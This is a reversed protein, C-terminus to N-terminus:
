QVPKKDPPVVHLMRDVQSVAMNLLKQRHQGGLALHGRPLVRYSRFLRHQRFTILWDAGIRCLCLALVTSGLNQCHWDSLIHFRSNNAILKLRDYQHLLNWGIRQDRAACKLASASFSPQAIWQLEHTAVYRLAHGITPLDDLYHYQM